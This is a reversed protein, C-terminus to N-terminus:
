YVKLLRARYEFDPELSPRGAPRPLLLGVPLPLQGAALSALAERLEKPTRLWGEVHWWTRLLARGRLAEDPPPTLAGLAGPAVRLVFADFLPNGSSELLKADLLAGSKAQRLELTLTLLAGRGELAGLTERAQAMMRMQLVHADTENGFRAALQESQLPALPPPAGGPDGTRGYQEAAATYNKVLGAVPNRVGLQRPKGGEAGALAGELSDVMQEFYPHRGVGRARSAASEDDMWDQVRANLRESTEAPSEPALAPDGPRLTRGGAPPSVALAGPGPVGGPWSPLLLPKRPAGPVEPVPHEPHSPPPGPAPPRQAV